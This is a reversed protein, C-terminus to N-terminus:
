IAEQDRIAAIIPATDEHVWWQVVKGDSLTFMHVYENDVARGTAKIRFREFVLVVVKNGQAIFERPEYQEFEVVEALGAMFEAAQARGRRKGAWPWIATSMPHRFDIEDSFANLITEIDGRQFAAFGQKVLEINDQESM